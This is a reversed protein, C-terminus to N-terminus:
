AVGEKSLKEILDGLIGEYLCSLKSIRMYDSPKMLSSDKPLELAKSRRLIESVFQSCFFHKRRRYPIKFHCLLLGIINFSYIHSNRMIKRVEARAAFYIDDTVELEFLACPINRHKKYYGKHFHEKCPGAPFLTVGNKRSSSYMPQLTDEFSISAHTYTDATFIHVIKSLITTSKTLLIYIKKM